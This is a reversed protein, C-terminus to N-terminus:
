LKIFDDQKYGQMYLMSTLDTHRICNLLSEELLPKPHYGIGLGAATLMPLDNAGDGIAMTQSLDLSLKQAYTKLYDLKSEKDLIPEIVKGTLKGDEIDLINGHHGAFGIKQSIAQTFYTFGGSVLIPATGNERLTAITIEAGKSIKTLELTRKLAKEPLNKLLGVREKIAAHFDIEGRMARETIKAVQDKIGSENALEDLTESTVITSDMDALLLKKRRDTFSTCFIDIKDADLELRLKQMQEITLSEAIPFDAAVHLSLWEPEGTPMLGQEEIFRGITALHGASLPTESAVLTLIFNM